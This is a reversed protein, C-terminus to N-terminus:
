SAPRWRVGAREANCVRAAPTLLGHRLWSSGPTFRGACCLWADAAPLATTVQTHKPAHVACNHMPTSRCLLGRRFWPVCTCCVQSQQSAQQLLVAQQAATLQGEFVAAGAGMGHALLAMPVPGAMAAALMAAQQATTGPLPEQDQALLGDAASDGGGPSRPRKPARHRHMRGAAADSADSGADSPEDASAFGGGSVAVARQAALAAASWAAACRATGTIRAHM